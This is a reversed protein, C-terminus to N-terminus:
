RSIVNALLRSTFPNITAADSPTFPFRILLLQSLHGTEQPRKGPGSLSMCRTGEASLYSLSVSEEVLFPCGSGGFSCCSCLARPRPAPRPAPSVHALRGRPSPLQGREGTTLRQDSRGALGRPLNRGAVRQGAAVGDEGEELVLLKGWPEPSAPKVEQRSVMSEPGQPLISFPINSFSGRPHNACPPAERPPHDWLGQWGQFFGLM